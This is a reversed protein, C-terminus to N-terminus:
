YGLPRQFAGTVESVPKAIGLLRSENWRKGVLQVGIPLGDRDLKYPLVAAPHGTYNFISPHAGVTWYDVEQGDVLLPSGTEWHPFATVMSPPSLLVDWTDFFQEWAIISQDRRHLAELYSALTAPPEDAEKPQFAGTAMGALEGISTLDQNFDLAPLTADEVTAGLSQLQTALEKVADSIEAAVPLGPLTPAFAIRLNKLALQPAADIPVPKVETDRGDPGAIIPYLLELDETTRAMPGICAMIHLARPSNLGPIHGISSVRQETPKLGFVGCFHAPVRISGGLDSGNEFPVMGSALAAAAGGV